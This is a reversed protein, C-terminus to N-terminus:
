RGDPTEVPPLGLVCVAGGDFGRMLVFGPKCRPASVGSAAKLVMSFGVIALTLACIISIFRGM